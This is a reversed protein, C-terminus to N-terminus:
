ADRSAFWRCRCCCFAGRVAAMLMSDNPQFSNPGEEWIYGDGAMSTINGGVRDRAETVLFKPVTDAHKTAFAQATVLGSIGAGVVVTDYIDASAGNASAARVSSRPTSSRCQQAKKAAAVLLQSRQQAVQSSASTATIRVQRRSGCLGGRAIALHKTPAASAAVGSQTASALRM